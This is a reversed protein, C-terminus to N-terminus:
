RRRQGRDRDTSREAAAPQPAPEPAPAEPEPQPAPPQNARVQEIIAHTDPTIPSGPSVILHGEVPESEVLTGDMTVWMGSTSVTEM